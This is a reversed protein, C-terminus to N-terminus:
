NCAWQSLAGSVDFLRVWNRIEWMIAEPQDQPHSDLFEQLLDRINHYVESGTVGHVNGLSAALSSM